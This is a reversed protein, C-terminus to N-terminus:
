VLRGLVDFEEFLKVKYKEEIKRVEDRWEEVFQIRTEPKPEGAKTKVVWGDPFDSTKFLGHSGGWKEFPLWPRSLLFHVFNLKPKLEDYNLGIMDENQSKINQFAYNWTIDLNTIEFSEDGGWFENFRNGKQLGSMVQQDHVLGGHWKLYEETSFKRYVSHALSFLGKERMKKNNFFLVGSNYENEIDAEPRGAIEISDDLWSLDLEKNCLVDADIFCSFDYGMDYLAEPGVFYWFMHEPWNANHISFVGVLDPQLLTINMDRILKINEEDDVDSIIFPHFNKNKECAIALAACMQKVYNSNGCSFIAIDNM